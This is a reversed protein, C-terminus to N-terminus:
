RPTNGQTIHPNGPTNSLEPQRQTKSSAEGFMDLADVLKPRSSETSLTRTKPNLRLIKRGRMKKALAVTNGTGGSSGDWVAITMESQDLMWRNRRDMKGMFHDSHYAPLEDVVVVESAAKLLMRYVHQSEDPWRSEQGKFPVAGIFPISLEVCIEAFITDVGLALGTIALLDEQRSSMQKLLTRLSSRVWQEM